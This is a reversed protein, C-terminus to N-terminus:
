LSRGSRMSSAAILFAVRFRVRRHADRGTEARDGEPRQGGVLHERPRAAGADFPMSHPASTGRAVRRRDRSRPVRARAAVGAHLDHRVAGVEAQRRGVAGVVARDVGHEVGGLREARRHHADPGLEAHRGDDASASRRRTVSRVAVSTSACRRARPRSAASSNWGAVSVSVAADASSSSVASSRGSRRVCQCGSGASAGAAASSPARRPRCRVERVQVDERPARRADVIAAREGVADVEPRRREREGIAVTRRQGAPAEGKRTRGRRRGRATRRRRAHEATPEICQLDRSGQGHDPVEKGSPNRQPAAVAAWWTSPPLTLESM